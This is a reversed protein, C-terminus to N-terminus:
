NWLGERLVDLLLATEKAELKWREGNIQLKLKAMVTGKRNSGNSGRNGPPGLVKVMKRRYDASAHPDTM